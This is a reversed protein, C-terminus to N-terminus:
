IEDKRRIQWITLNSWILIHALLLIWRSALALANPTYNIYFDLPTAVDKVLTQLGRGTDLVNEVRVQSLTNLHEINASIGLSELSWRTITLYSLPATLPSLEFIAGSFVIQILIAILILYTVMDKSTASASIFLGLAISALM